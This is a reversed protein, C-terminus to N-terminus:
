KSHTDSYLQDLEEEWGVLECLKKISEDCEGELWVDKSGGFTGVRERNILVRHVDSKVWDPISAVPAVMLSTGLVLVLDCSAVDFHVLESFRNPMVEGFFVITPKV